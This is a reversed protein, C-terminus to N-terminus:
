HIHIHAEAAPPLVGLMAVIGIVVLGLFIEFVANRELRRATQVRLDSPYHDAVKLLFPMLRLRNVTAIGVMAVFLVIKMLLLQGYDTDILGTMTGVLFWANIVGSALLTGVSVMGLDSFRCAARYAIEAWKNDGSRRLEGFLLVLPVLGGLWAGAASLHIVDAAIHFYWASGSTGGGHGAWALGALFGISVLSAFLGRWGALPGPHIVLGATLVTALLFRLQWDIGFRTQTLLVWATDDTIAESLSQGGIRAALLVLWAAGSAVALVLNLSLLVFLRRRFREAIARSPEAAPWFVPEAVLYSFLVAGTVMMTSAFHIARVVILPDILSDESKFPDAAFSGASRVHWADM